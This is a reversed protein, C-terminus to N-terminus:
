MTPPMSSATSFALFSALPHHSDRDDGGLRCHEVALRVRDDRGRVVTLDANQRVMGREHCKHSLSGQDDAAALAGTPKEYPASEQLNNVVPHTYDGFVNLSAAM